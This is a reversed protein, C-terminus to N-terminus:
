GAAAWGAIAASVVYDARLASILLETITYGRAVSFGSCGRLYAGGVVVRNCRLQCVSEDPVTSPTTRTRDEEQEERFLRSFVACARAAGEVL